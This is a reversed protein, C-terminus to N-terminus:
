GATPPAGEPTTPPGPTAITVNSFVDEAVASGKTAQVRFEYGHGDVLGGASFTTGSVEQPLRVWDQGITTDRLWVFVATAGPPPVWSLDVAGEAPRARLVAPLRPGNPVPPLPEPYPTGLGLGALADAVGAAIKLEGTATPHAADYTDTGQVFPEVPRALVVRAISTDLRAALRALGADYQPVGALWRQPLSTLVVDIYPDVARADAVFRRAAALVQAPQEHAWVLDNVGLAEVVVDPHYDRVLTAVPPQEDSFAMGWRAAHDQDFAPDAYAHSGLEGTANDLLDDRPGVFDVKLGDARLHTWLRYRWTYDGVSGQTVSDGVLAVRTPGGRDSSPSCAVVSAVLLAVIVLLLRHAPM